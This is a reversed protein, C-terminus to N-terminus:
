DLFKEFGKAYKTPEFEIVDYEAIGEQHFPDEAIISQVEAANEAKCLIIGGVRPNKRGSFIFKGLGYHKELFAVHKELCADVVELSKAYTLSILFM